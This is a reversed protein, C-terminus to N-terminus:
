GEFKWNLKGNAPNISTVYFLHNDSEWVTIIYNKYIINRSPHYTQDIGEKYIQNEWIIEDSDYNIATLRPQDKDADISTHSFVFVMKDIHIVNRNRPIEGIDKIPRLFEGNLWISDEQLEKWILATDSAILKKIIRRKSEDLLLCTTDRTIVTYNKAFDDKVNLKEELTMSPLIAEKRQDSFNEVTIEIGKPKSKEISEYFASTGFQQYYDLSNYQGVNENTMFEAPSYYFNEAQSNEVHFKDNSFDWDLKYIDKIEPHADLLKVKVSEHDYLDTLEPIQLCSFENNFSFWLQNDNYFLVEFHDWSDSEIEYTSIIEGNDINLLSIHIFDKFFKGVKREENSILLVYDSQTTEIFWIRELTDRKDKKLVNNGVFLFIMVGVFLILAIASNRTSKKM